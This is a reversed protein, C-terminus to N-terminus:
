DGRRSRDGAAAGGGGPGPLRKSRAVWSRRAGPGSRGGGRGPHGRGARGIVPDAVGAGRGPPIGRTRSRRRAARPATGNRPPRRACIPLADHLSLTYIETSATDNFFFFFSVSFFYHPHPCTDILM